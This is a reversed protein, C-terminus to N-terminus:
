YYITKIRIGFVRIIKKVLKIDYTYGDASKTPENVVICVYKPTSAFLSRIKFLLGNSEFIQGKHLYNNKTKAKFIM